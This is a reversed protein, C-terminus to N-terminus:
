KLYNDLLKYKLMIQYLRKEMRNQINLCLRVHQFMIYPLISLLYRLVKKSKQKWRPPRKQETKIEM